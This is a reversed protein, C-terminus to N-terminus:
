LRKVLRPERLAAGRFDSKRVYGDREYGAAEYVALARENQEHTFLFSKECGAKRLAEHAADLLQRGVGRGGVDPHVFLLFMECDPPHVATFGVIRGNPEEAVLMLNPAAHDAVEKDWDEPRFMPKEVVEGLYTWGLRVATDFVAGIARADGPEAARLHM